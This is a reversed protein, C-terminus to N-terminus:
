LFKLTLSRGNLGRIVVLHNKINLILNKVNLNKEKTEVFFHNNWFQYNLLAKWTPNAQHRQSFWNAGHTDSTSV